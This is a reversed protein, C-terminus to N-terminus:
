LWCRGSATNGLDRGHFELTSVGIFLFRTRVIKKQKPDSVRWWVLTGKYFSSRSYYLQAHSAHVHLPSLVSEFRRLLRSISVVRCVSPRRQNFKEEGCHIQRTDLAKNVKQPLELSFYGTAENSRWNRDRQEDLSCNNVSFRCRPWHSYWM